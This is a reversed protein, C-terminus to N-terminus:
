KIMSLLEDVTAAYDKILFSRVIEPDKELAYVPKNLAFGYTMEITVGYGIYGDKNFIFLLDCDSIYKLYNELEQKLADKKQDENLDANNEITLKPFIVEHGKSTLEDAFKEMDDQFKKVSGSIVIKM